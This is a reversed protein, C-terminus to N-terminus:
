TAKPDSIPAWFRCSRVLLFAVRYRFPALSPSFQAKPELTVLLSVALRASVPNLPDTTKYFAYMTYAGPQMVRIVDPNLGVFGATSGTGSQPFLVLFNPPSNAGPQTHDFVFSVDPDAGIRFYNTVSTSTSSRAKFSIFGDPSIRLQGLALSSCLLALSAGRIMTTKIL